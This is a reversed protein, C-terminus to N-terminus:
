PESRDPLRQLVPHELQPLGRPLLRSGSPFDRVWGTRLALGVHRKPELEGYVFDSESFDLEIGLETLRARVSETPERWTPDTSTIARVGSCASGDCRGDGDADYRSQAMEARAADLDGRDDPTAYPDYELLLNNQLFDPAIHTARTVPVWPEPPVAGQRLAQKDVALSVAKRVHVDDFPPQAINLTVYGIGDMFFFTVNDALDPDSRFRAVVEPQPSVDFVLDLEGAELKRFATDVELFAIEIRDVYAERLGDTAADWSPNRVLTITAGPVYRELMYPGSAALYPGYGDDHGDAAGPPIPATSALAFRVGLDGAPETLHVVLTRDDPAELGSISGAKGERFATTGEILPEYYHASSGLVPSDFAEAWSPNAPAFVRELARVFDSAVIERDAFPPAYRIGPKLRFTWTLGDPSVEPLGDALDPRLEAGGESTPQGNYSM